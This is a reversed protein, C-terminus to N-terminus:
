QLSCSNCCRKRTIWDGKKICLSVGGCGHYQCCRKRTIGDDGESVHNLMTMFEEFTIKDDGDLDVKAFLSDVSACTKSRNVTKQLPEHLLLSRFEQISLIGDGDLDFTEFAKRCNIESQEERHEMAATIFETYSIHGDNQCSWKEALSTLEDSGGGCKKNLGELVEKLSLQGSGDGDMSVFLAALEQFQDDDLQQVIATLAAKKFRNMHTFARIKDVIGSDLCREVEGLPGATSIWSTDLAAQATCRKEPEFTLLSHVLAKADESVSQWLATDMKYVGKKIKNRCGQDSLGAFPPEGCLLLYLVVGCSWYDSAKDYSAAFVEPAMYMTTGVVSTMTEGETHHRSIGFDIVKLVCGDLPQKSTLMFNEPKLDRHVFSMGHMYNVARFVQLMVNSIAKETLGSGEAIHDLLEGGKFLNMVLRVSHSDEFVDFLKVINPHDMSKMFTIENELMELGGNKKVRAKSLCKVAREEGSNKRICPYVYGFTGAGLRSEELEYHDELKGVSRFLSQFQLCNLSNNTEATDQVDESSVQGPLDKVDDFPPPAVNEPLAPRPVAQEPLKEM